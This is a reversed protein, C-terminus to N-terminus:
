FRGYGPTHSNFRAIENRLDALVQTALHDQHGSWALDALRGEREAQRAGLGTIETPVDDLVAFPNKFPLQRRRPKPDEILDM